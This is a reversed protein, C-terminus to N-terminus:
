RCIRRHKNAKCIMNVDPWQRRDPPLHIRRDLYCKFDNIGGDLSLTALQLEREPNIRMVYGDDLYILGGDFARHYTPSLAIGNRVDDTTEDAQVPLIHAADVLRLQMRTVSCRNGYACLVQQRFCASRAWRNVTSLIRQRKPTLKKIEKKAIRELASAKSLMRYMFANKGLRHLDVANAMYNVMQDPRIAIAIEQNSKRDFALGDTLAKHISKMDIQVSPSGTTFTCHRTLDFGAFMKLNPEYGLLLTYGKPNLPLPSSVTTMQIRYEDPFSPRGGHTLTWAYIWVEVNGSETEVLFRRAHRSPSSLTLASTGSDEFAVLIAAVIEHPRTARVSTDGDLDLLAVSDFPYLFGIEALDICPVRKVGSKRWAWVRHRGDLWKEGCVIAPPLNQGVMAEAYKRDRYDTGIPVDPFAAIPLERVTFCDGQLKASLLEDGDSSSVIEFLLVQLDEPLDSFRRRM